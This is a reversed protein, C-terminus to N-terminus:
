AKPKWGIPLTGDPLRVYVREARSVRTMLININGPEKKKNLQQAAWQLPGDGPLWDVSSGNELSWSSGCNKCEMTAVGNEKTVTANMLPFSCARCSGDTAYVTSGEGTGDEGRVLTWIFNQGQPSMGAEVAKTNGFDSGLEEKEAVLTWESREFDKRKMKESVSRQMTKGV